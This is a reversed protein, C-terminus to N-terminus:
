QKVIQYLPQKAGHGNVNELVGVEKIWGANRAKYMNRRITATTGPVTCAIELATRPKGDKMLKVVDAQSM